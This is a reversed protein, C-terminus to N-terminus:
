EYDNWDGLEKEKVRQVKLVEADTLPMNYLATYRVVDCADKYEESVKRYLGKVPDRVDIFGFNMLGNIVNPCCDHVLLRPRNTPGVPFNRDFRLLDQVVTIGYDIKGTNPIEADFYLGYEAM